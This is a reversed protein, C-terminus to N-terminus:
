DLEHKELIYKLIMKGNVGLDAFHERESVNGWEIKM